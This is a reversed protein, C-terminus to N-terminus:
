VGYEPPPCTFNGQKGFINLDYHYGGPFGDGFPMGTEGVPKGAHSTIELALFTVAAVFLNISRKM